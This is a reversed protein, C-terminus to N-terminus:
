AIRKLRVNNQLAKRQTPRVMLPAPEDEETAEHERAAGYLYAGADEPRGSCKVVFMGRLANPSPWAAREWDPPLVFLRSGLVRRMVDAMAGQQEYTCHLELSLVVPFPSMTFAHELLTRVADEFLIKSTMTYGHTIIPRGDAGDWCDLEFCRCGLLLAEIYANESSEGTLQNATLYTNHSSNIHYSPLPSDM